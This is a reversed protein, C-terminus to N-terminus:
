RVISAKPSEMTKTFRWMRAIPEIWTSLTQALTAMSEHPSSALRKIFALLQRTLKRCQRVTQHKLNLLARLAQMEEYIVKLAPHKKLFAKFEQSQEPSLNKPSMRLLNLINRQYKIEPLIARAYKMFHYIVIRIVHFRDAVIKAKPFWQRILSRYSSSLDICVMRVKERGQLRSLFGELAENSKGEVIDFVKHNKLDCFTTVFRGKKKHLSHEDIGLIQPCQLSIREAAKRRNFHQYITLPVALV